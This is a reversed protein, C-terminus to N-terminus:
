KIFMLRDFENIIDRISYVMSLSVRLSAHMGHSKVNFQVHNDPLLFKGQMILLYFLKSSCRIVLPYSIIKLARDIDLRRFIYKRFSFPNILPVHAMLKDIPLYM